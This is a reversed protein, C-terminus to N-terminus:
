GLGPDGAEIERIVASAALFRQADEQYIKWGPKEGFGNDKYLWDDPDKGTAECMARAVREVKQWYAANRDTSM